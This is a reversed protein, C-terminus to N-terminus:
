SASTSGGSWTGAGPTSFAGRFRTRFRRSTRTTTSSPGGRRLYLLGSEGGDYGVLRADELIRLTDTYDEWSLNRYVYARRAMEYPKERPLRKYEILLGVIFHALVDLGGVPEVAEFRGELAHKAIVLSQLYDEM